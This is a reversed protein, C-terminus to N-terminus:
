ITMTIAAAFRIPFERMGLQFIAEQAIEWEGTVPPSVHKGALNADNWYGMDTIDGLIFVHELKRAEATDAIVKYQYKLKETGLFYDGCTIYQTDGVFALSYAHDTDFHNKEWMSAEVPTEIRYSAAFGGIGLTAALTVAAIFFALLRVSKKMDKEKKIRDVLSPPM